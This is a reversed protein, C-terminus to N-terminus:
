PSKKENMIAQGGVDTRYQMGNFNIHEKVCSYAIQAANQYSDGLSAISLVRGGSAMLEDHIFETGCHYVRCNNPIPQLISIAQPSSPQYPYNKSALTLVFSKKNNWTISLNEQALVSMCLQAFPTQLRHLLCQAEPDGLRVNFELVKPGNETLILGVYLFGTYPTDDTDLQNLLPQVINQEIEEKLPKNMFHTPTYAGMGGTNPGEDNDLLRKHDQADGFFYFSKEHCLAFYSLEPGVLFEEFIIASPNEGFILQNFVKDCFDLSEQKSQCIVVGKGAALGDYKLAQPYTENHQIYKKAEQYNTATEFAGTPINAKQMIKKAFYKSSELQAAEKSPGFIKLNYKKFTNVIGNNLPDEPGVITLDINNKKAWLALDQHSAPENIDVKKSKDLEFIAHSGPYAYVTSVCPDDNVAWCIAHERGGKGIVLIKM